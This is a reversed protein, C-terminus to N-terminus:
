TATPYLTASRINTFDESALVGGINLLTKVVGKIEAPGLLHTGVTYLCKGRGARSRFLIEVPSNM